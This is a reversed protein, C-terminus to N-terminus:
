KNNVYAPQSMKGKLDAFTELKLELSFKILIHVHEPLVPGMCIAGEYRPYHTHSRDWNVQSM